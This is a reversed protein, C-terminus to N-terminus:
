TVVTHAEVPYNFYRCYQMFSLKAEPHVVSTSLTALGVLLLSLKLLNM